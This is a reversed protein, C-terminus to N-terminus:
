ERNNTIIRLNIGLENAIEEMIWKKRENDNYTSYYIGNYEIIRKYARARKFEPHDQSTKFHKKLIESDRNRLQYNEICYNMFAKYYSTSYRTDAILLSMGNVIVEIIKM